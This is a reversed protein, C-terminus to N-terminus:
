SAYFVRGVREALVWCMLLGLAALPGGLGPPGALCLLAQMPILLRVLRGVTPPVKKPDAGGPCRAMADLVGATGALAAAALPLAAPRLGPMVAVLGLGLVPVAVAYRWAGPAKRTENSAFATLAAVYFGWCVAVTVVPLLAERDPILLAGAFLNLGRCFGMLIFGARPAVTKVRNYVLIAAILVPPMDGWREPLIGSAALVLPIAFLVAEAALAAKRSIRGGPLPRGPRDRRDEELDVLDNDILGGAYLCLAALVALVLAPAPVASGTLAAALFAGALVDGPVSFLNPLRVLQLWANLPFRNTDPQSM